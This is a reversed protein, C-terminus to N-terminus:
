QNGVVANKWPESYNTNHAPVQGSKLAEEKVKAAEIAAEIIFAAENSVSRKNVKASNALHEYASDELRVTMQRM